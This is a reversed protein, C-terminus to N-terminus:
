ELRQLWAERWLHHCNRPCCRRSMGNCTVGDLVVTDTIQHMEGSWELIIHDMRRLVRYTGNCFHVMEPAFGLGRNRGTTDLTAEIEERSKVRVLEGPRLGLSIRPTKSLPGKVMGCEKLGVARRLKNRVLLTMMGTWEGVTMKRARFDRVYQRVDWWPLRTACNFLETAQCYFKDGKMTPLHKTDISPSAVPSANTAKAAAAPQLWAEKWFALCGMQCGGHSQGSCRVGELFVTNTLRAVADRRDLFIKEARRYVRFQHGCYPVMEPMFPLGEYTGQADLTALIEAIPRVEVWDGPRFHFEM